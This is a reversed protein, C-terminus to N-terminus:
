PNWLNKGIYLMVAVYTVLAGAALAGLAILLVAWWPM